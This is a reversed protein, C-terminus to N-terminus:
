KSVWPELAVVVYCCCGEHRQISSFDHLGNERLPHFVRIWCGTLIIYICSFPHPLLYTTPLYKTPLLYTFNYPAVQHTTFLYTFQLYTRPTYYYTPLNYTPVQHTTITPLYKIPLLPLYTSQIMFYKIPENTLYTFICTFPEL